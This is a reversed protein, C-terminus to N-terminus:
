RGSKFCITTPIASSMSPDVSRSQSTVQRCPLVASTLVNQRRDFPHLWLKLNRSIVIAALRSITLLAVKSAKSFLSAGTRFMTATRIRRCFATLTLLATASTYQGVAGGPLEDESLGAYNAVMRHSLERTLVVARSICSRPDLAFFLGEHKRSTLRQNEPIPNLLFAWLPRQSSRGL